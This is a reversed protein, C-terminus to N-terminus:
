LAFVNATGLPLIGLMAQTGSLGAAVEAITGDGGAAVVIGNEEASMRAFNEADGRAATEMLQFLVGLGYLLDLAAHLKARRRAGASPNFVIVLSKSM